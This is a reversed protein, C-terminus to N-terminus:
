GNGYEKRFADAIFAASEETGTFVIIGGEEEDVVGWWGDLSEPHGDRKDVPMIWFRSNTM